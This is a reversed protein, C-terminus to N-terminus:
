AGGDGSVADEVPEVHVTVRCPESRQEVWVATIKCAKAQLDGPFLVGVTEGENPIRNGAPVFIDTDLAPIIQM